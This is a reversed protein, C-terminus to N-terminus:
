KLLARYAFRSLAKSEYLLIVAELYKLEKEFNEEGLLKVLEDRHKLRAELRGSANTIPGVSQDEENSLEFGVEELVRRNYGKPVFQTYGNISRLHIDQNSVPGTIVGADTFLLKGGPKLIRRWDAFVPKRDELHLIVDFSVILDFTDELFWLPQNGDAEHLEIKQTLGMAKVRNVAVELAPGSLDIGIAVAGTEQALFTLPGGPGCGFDLFTEAESLKLWPLYSRLEAATIWSNQGIDEDYAEARIQRMLPTDFLEYTNKYGKALKDNM